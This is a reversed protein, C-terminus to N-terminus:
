RGKVKVDWVLGAAALPAVLLHYPLDRGPRHALQPHMHHHSHTDEGVLPSFVSTLRLLRFFLNPALSSPSDTAACFDRADSGGSASRKHAAVEPPHNAVNFWLTIVQCFNASVYSVWLGASGALANAILMETLVQNPNPNPNPDPNPDRDPNPYGLGVRVMLHADGPTCRLWPYHM